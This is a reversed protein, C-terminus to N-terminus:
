GIPQEGDTERDPIRRTVQRIAFAEVAFATGGNGERACVGAIGPDRRMRMHRQKAARGVDRMALLRRIASSISPM